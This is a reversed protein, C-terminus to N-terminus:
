TIQMLIVKCKTKTEQDFHSQNIHPNNTQKPPDFFLLFILLAIGLCGIVIIIEHLWHLFNTQSQFIWLIVCLVQKVISAL